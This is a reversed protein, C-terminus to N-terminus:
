QAAAASWEGQFGVEEHPAALASVTAPGDVLREIVARRTPDSLAGFFDDLRNALHFPLAPRAQPYSISGRNAM